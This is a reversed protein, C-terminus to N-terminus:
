IPVNLENTTKITIENEAVRSISIENKSELKNLTQIRNTGIDRGSFTEAVMRLYTYIQNKMNDIINKMVNKWGVELIRDKNESTNSLFTFPFLISSFVQTYIFTFFNNGRMIALIIIHTITVIMEAVTNITTVQANLKLRKMNATNTEDNHLDGAGCIQRSLFSFKTKAM